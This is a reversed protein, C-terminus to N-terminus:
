AGYSKSTKQVVIGDGSLLRLYRLTYEVGKPTGYVGPLCLGNGLAHEMVFTKVRGCQPIYQLRVVIGDGGWRTELNQSM